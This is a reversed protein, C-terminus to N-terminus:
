TNKRTREAALLARGRRRLRNRRRRRDRAAARRVVRVRASRCCSVHAAARLQHPKFIIRPATLSKSHVSNPAALYSILRDAASARLVHALRRLPRPPPVRPRQLRQRAAAPSRTTHPAGRVSQTAAVCRQKTSQVQAIFRKKTTDRAQKLGSNRLLVFGINCSASHSRLEIAEAAEM